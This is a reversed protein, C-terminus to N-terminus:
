ASLCVSAITPASSSVFRRRSFCSAYLSSFPIVGSDTTLPTDSM